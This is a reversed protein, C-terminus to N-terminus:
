QQAEEEKAFLGKDRPLNKLFIQALLIGFAFILAGTLGQGLTDVVANYAPSLFGADAGATEGLPYTRFAVKFGLWGFFGLVLFALTYRM